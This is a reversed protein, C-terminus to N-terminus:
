EVVEVAIDAPEQAKGADVATSGLRYTVSVDARVTLSGPSIPVSEAQAMMARGMMPRPWDTGGEQITLVRGLEVDAEAALAQAKQRANALAKRLAQGALEARDGVSFQIGHIQNAGEQVVADLIEGMRPLERITIHVQNTVLYGTIEPERQAEPRPRPDHRQQPSVQFNSTQIDREAIGQQQLARILDDMKRNNEDVATAASEAETVVGVQIEAMDPEHQVEGTGNVSITPGWTESQPGAQALASNEGALLALPVVLALFRHHM